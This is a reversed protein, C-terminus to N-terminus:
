YLLFEVYFLGESIDGEQELSDYIGLINQIRIACIPWMM